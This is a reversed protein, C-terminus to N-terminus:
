GAPVTGIEESAAPALGEASALLEAAFDQDAAAQRAVLGILASPTLRAAIEAFRREELDADGTRSSVSVFTFGERLAALAVGVTHGCLGDPGTDPCDCEGTLEGNVVGVWVRLPGGEADGVVATAGGDEAELDGIRGQALCEQGWEALEPGVSARLLDLDLRVAMDSM